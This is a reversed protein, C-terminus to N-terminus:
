SRGTAPASGKRCLKAIETAYQEANLGVVLHLVRDEVRMLGQIGSQQLAQEQLVKSDALEVRLRTMAVANVSCINAAGGMGAVMNRAKEAAAPDAAIQPQTAAVTMSQEPTPAVVADAEPGATKLYEEMDTKLNESRPGFIAQANNGVQLVGSAGLAKLRAINVKGMDKVGIRLRTICADLSDINSRGGFALTLEKAMAAADQPLRTASEEDSYKAERGPTMLNFRRIVIRFSFYYLAAFLPALAPILWVRTGLTYFLIFDIAGHSFTFGMRGGLSAFLFDAFGALVAHMLYLIPAVFVFSFEIPETIGTLLSTLAASIMIGGIVKRSEPRASHWMAIAAAPLGFMKFWYAGGIIGATPDGSFFRNIDGTVTENTIPDVFSGIQFFFPVNWVHHLGFPLLLREM